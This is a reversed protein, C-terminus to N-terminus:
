QQMLNTPFEPSWFLPIRLKKTSGKSPLAKLCHTAAPSLKAVKPGTIGFIRQKPNPSDWKRSKYQTPNQSDEIYEAYTFDPIKM